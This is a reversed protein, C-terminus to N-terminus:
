IREYVLKYIEYIKMNFRQLYLDYKYINFDNNYGNCSYIGLGIYESPDNICQQCYILSKIHDFWQHIDFNLETTKKMHYEYIQIHLSAFNSLINMNVPVICRLITDEDDYKIDNLLDVM